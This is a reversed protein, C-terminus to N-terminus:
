FVAVDVIGVKIFQLSVVDWVYNEHLFVVVLAFPLLSSHPFQFMQCFFSVAQDCVGPLFIFM